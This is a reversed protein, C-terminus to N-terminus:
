SAWSISNLHVFCDSCDSCCYLFVDQLVFRYSADNGNESSNRQKTVTIIHKIVRGYNLWIIVSPVVYAAMLLFLGSLWGFIESSATNGCILTDHVATRNVFCETTICNGDTISCLGDSAAELCKSDATPTCKDDKTICKSDVATLNQLLVEIETDLFDINKDSNTCWFTNIIMHDSESGHPKLDAIDKVPQELTEGEYTDTICQYEKGLSINHYDELFTDLSSSKTEEIERQSYVNYELLSPIICLSTWLWVGVLMAVTKRKSFRAKQPKVIALFREWSM